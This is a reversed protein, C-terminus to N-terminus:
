AEGGGLWWGLDERGKKTTPMLHVGSVVVEQGRERGGRWAAELDSLDSALRARRAAATATPAGPDLAALLIVAPAFFLGWVPTTGWVARSPPVARPQLGWVAPAAGLEPRADNHRRRRTAM